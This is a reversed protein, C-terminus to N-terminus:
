LLCKFGVVTLLHPGRTGHQATWGGAPRRQPKGWISQVSPPPDAYKLSVQLNGGQIFVYYSWQGLLGTVLARGRKLTGLTTDSSAVDQM